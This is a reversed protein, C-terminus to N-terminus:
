GFYKDMTYEFLKETEAISKSIASKQKEIAEIKNAFSQQLSLPPIPILSKKLQGASIRTRTQGHSFSQCQTDVFGKENLVMCLFTNSIIDKRVRCLVCDAKNIAKQITNPILCARLNPEGLTGIVIDGPYCSYKSLTGYHDESIYAQDLDIFTNVGINQLRIVRVGTQQYHESKLNSGFPGDSYKVTIEGLKKVEWGKDNAVPDGFMDYFISQALTDLEKLQAKQKDILSQLLDLESVIRSQTSLPPVPIPFDRIQTLSLNQQAVGVKLSLIASLITKSKLYYKLFHIFGIEKEKLRIIALAQNTNAPLITKPVIAVRGLAGAISYLIDFEELQSRKLANNCDESIHSVLSPLIEGNGTLSEIKIFAVGQETFDFGLSTPTTGKTILSCLDGLKKYTWNQKMTGIM